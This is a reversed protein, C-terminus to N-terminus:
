HADASTLYIKGEGYAIYLHLKQLVDMGLLLSAYDPELFNRGEAIRIKPNLVSLGGMELTKFPYRYSDLQGGSLGSFKGVKEVGPSAASLGFLRQAEQMSIVSVPAGTDIVAYVQQGDLMMAVRIHGDNMVGLKNMGDSVVRGPIVTSNGTVTSFPLAVYSGTWYVARDSCPHHRFLNLEGRAFDFDADYNRLVDVGILGDVDPLAALVDFYDGGKELHDLRFESVRVYEDSLRGAVDFIIRSNQRHTVLGLGAITTKTLGTIATGTDIEMAVDKGNVQAPIQAHGFKYTMPLEAMRVLKCDEPWAGQALAMGPWLLAGFLFGWFVWGCAMGAAFIRGLTM